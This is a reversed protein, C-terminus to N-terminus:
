IAEKADADIGVVDTPQVSIGELREALMRMLTPNRSGGGNVLVDDPLAPLFRRYSDAISEATWATVTAILDCAVQRADDDEGTLADGPLGREAVWTRAQPMGYYERGTTKPPTEQLYPDNMLEIVMADDVGGAAGFHGDEDFSMEGGSLLTVLADILINGPGTDFAIVSDRDGGAPVWTVNGIGGINQVCRNRSKDGLAAWDLYPALPAGQGGVAMDAVRFDAVVPAGTAAAIVSPEGIQLTSPVTLPIAPDHAPQHWVTQGHSGIVHLDSPDVDHQQCITLAADAFCQGVVVNLSCLRAVADQQDDYLALLEARVAEPYPFTEFGVMSITADQGVGDIVVLAADIGDVSTGSIMGLCLDSM